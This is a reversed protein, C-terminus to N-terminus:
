HAEVCYVYTVVVVVVVVVVGVVVTGIVVFIVVVSGAGKRGECRKEYNVGSLPPM